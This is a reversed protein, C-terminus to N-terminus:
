KKLGVIFFKWIKPNVIVGWLKCINHKLGRFHIKEKWYNVEVYRWDWWWCRREKKTTKKHSFWLDSQFSWIQQMFKHLLVHLDICCSSHTLQHVTWNSSMWIRTDLFIRKALIIQMTRQSNSFISLKPHSYAKRGFHINMTKRLCIIVLLSSIFIKVEIANIVSNPLTPLARSGFHVNGEISLHEYRVEIKPIEIGM